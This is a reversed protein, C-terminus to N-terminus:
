SRFSLMVFPLFSGNNPDRQHNALVSANESAISLFELSFNFIRWIKDCLYLRVAM